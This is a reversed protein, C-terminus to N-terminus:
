EVKEAYQSSIWGSKTAELQINFWDSKEDLISYKEGPKVRALESSTTAADSRVRLFGTPTDKILAYPKTPDASVGTTPTTKPTGTPTIKGSPKTEEPKASPTAEGLAVGSGGPALAM